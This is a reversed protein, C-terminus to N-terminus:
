WDIHGRLRTPMKPNKDAHDPIPDGLIGHLISEDICNVLITLVALQNQMATNDYYERTYGARVSQELAQPNASAFADEALEAASKSTSDGDVIAHLMKLLRRLVTAQMSALMNTWTGEAPIKDSRACGVNTLKVVAKEMFEKNNKCCPRRRDANWCCHTLKDSCEGNFFLTVEKVDALLLSDRGDKRKHHAADIDIWIDLASHLSCKLSGPPPPEGISRNCKDGMCTEVYNLIKMQRNHTKSLKAATGLKTVHIKLEFLQLKARHHIHSNCQGIMLLLNPVKLRVITEYIYTYWKLYLLNGPGQDCVKSATLSDVGDTDKVLAQMDAFALSRPQGSTVAPELATASTTELLYPQVIWPEAAWTCTESGDLPMSALTTMGRQMLVEHRVTTAPARVRRSRALRRYKLSVGDWMHWHHIHSWEKKVGGSRRKVRRTNKVATAWGQEQRIQVIEACSHIVKKHSIGLRPRINQPIHAAHVLPTMDAVEIERKRGVHKAKAGLVLAVEPIANTCMQLKRELMQTKKEQKADRRQTCQKVNVARALSARLPNCQHRRSLPNRPAPGALPPAPDAPPVSEHEPAPPHETYAAPPATPDEEPVGYDEESLLEGIDDM